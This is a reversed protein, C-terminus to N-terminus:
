TAQPENWAPWPRSSWGDLEVPSTLPTRVGHRAVIVIKQLVEDGAAAAFLPMGISGAAVLGLVARILRRGQSEGAMRNNSSIDPQM